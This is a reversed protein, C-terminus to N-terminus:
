SLCSVIADADNEMMKIYTMNADAVADTDLNCVKIGAANAIQTLGSTDYATETFVAPAHNTAVIQALGAQGSDAITGAVGLGYRKAFWILSNHYTVLLGRNQAPINGMKQLVEANLANLKTLYQQFRANYYAQNQGDKIVMSDAVTEPYVSILGPDLFLHPDDGVQKAYIPKDLPQKTSPSPVNRAFDIVFAPQTVHTLIFQETPPELGLGNYFIMNADSVVKVMDPSPVYTQPDAGPPILATVQAQDGTIEKVVDVFIPLSVVIKFPQGSHDVVPSPIEVGSSTGSGGGGCSALWVLLCALVM